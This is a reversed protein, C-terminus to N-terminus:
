VISVFQRVKRVSPDTRYGYSNTQENFLDDNAENLAKHLMTRAGTVPGSLSLIRRIVTTKDQGENFGFEVSAEEGFKEVAIHSGDSSVNLLGAVGAAFRRVDPWYPTISGSADLVFALDLICPDDVQEIRISILHM